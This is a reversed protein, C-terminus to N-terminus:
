RGTDQIGGRRARPDPDHPRRHASAALTRPLMRHAVLGGVTLVVTTSVVVPWPESAPWAVNAVQALGAATLGIYSWTMFSAHRADRAATWPGRLMQGWGLALTLLSAVALVHFVGIRGTQDFTVLAAVNLILMAGGYGRGLRVHARTGKPRALVLAGTVVACVAAVVHLEGSM